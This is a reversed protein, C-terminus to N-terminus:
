LDLEGYLIRLEDLTLPEGRKAKEEIQKRKEELTAVELGRQRSIKLERLRVMVERYKGYLLDLQKTVVDIAHSKANITGTLSALQKTLEDIKPTLSSIQAKITGISQRLEKLKNNLDSLRLKLSKVEAELELISIEEQRAKRIREALEELRQIEEVIRKEEQPPLVSTQQKWELEEIRKLVRRLSLKAISGEKELLQRAERLQELKSRFEKLVNDREQKLSNLQDLLGKRENRLKQLQEISERREESLKRRQERLEKVEQILKARQEKLNVIVERLKDVMKYLDDEKLNDLKAQLLQRVDEPLGSLAEEESVQVERRPAERQAQQGPQAHQRQEGEAPRAVDNNANSAVNNPAANEM